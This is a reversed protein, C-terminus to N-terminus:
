ALTNKTLWEIVDERNVEEIQVGQVRIFYRRTRKWTIREHVEYVGPDLPFYEKVGRSGISNAQSYDRQGRLFQRAFGFKPDLGTLRAVWPRSKDNGLMEGYRVEKESAEAGARKSAYFNDGIIELSLVAKM